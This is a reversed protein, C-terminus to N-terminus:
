SIPLDKWGHRRVCDQLVALLARRESRGLHGFFERDNEDALRALVPILRKGAATLALTQFRRDEGAATRNVLRKDVLREALKSVAGRTMGLAEALASPAVPGADYLERLFVWEAVTVGRGQVKQAFAHSVHNSVYRLWYGLHDDLRSVANSPRPM